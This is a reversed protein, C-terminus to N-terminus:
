TEYSWRYGKHQTVGQKGKCCRCVCSPSFGLRKVGNLNSFRIEEGTEINTGIVAKYTKKQSEHLNKLWVETRKARGNKHMWEMNERHTCWELNEVMNNKPNNDIHNVEKKGEPNEIFAEAVLRHVKAHRKNEGLSLIIQYYGHQDERQKMIQGNKLYSGQVREIVRPLSRVRGMDSVEYFGEYGKVSRWEETKGM